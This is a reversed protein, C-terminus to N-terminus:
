GFIYPYAVFALVVIVFNLLYHSSELNIEYRYKSRLLKLILHYFFKFLRTVIRSSTRPYSPKIQISSFLTGLVDCVDGVRQNEKVRFGSLRAFEEFAFENM